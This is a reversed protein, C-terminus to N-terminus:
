VRWGEELFGERVAEARRVRVRDESSWQRLFDAGYLKSVEPEPAGQTDAWFGRSDGM